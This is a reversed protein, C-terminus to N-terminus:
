EYAFLMCFAKVRILCSKSSNCVPVPARLASFFQAKQLMLKGSCNTLIIANITKSFCNTFLKWSFIVNQKELRCKKAIQKKLSFPM